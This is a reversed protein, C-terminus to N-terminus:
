LKTNVQKDRQDRVIFVAKFLKEGVNSGVGLIRDSWQKDGGVMTLLMHGSVVKRTCGVGSWDSYVDCGFAGLYMLGVLKSVDRWSGEDKVARKVLMTAANYYLQGKFHSMPKAPPSVSSFEKLSQDMRYLIDACVSAGAGERMQIDFVRDLSGLYLSYFKTDCNTKFQVKFQLLHTAIM